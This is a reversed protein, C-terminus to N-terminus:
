RRGGILPEDRYRAPTFPIFERPMGGDSVLDAVADGTVPALLVGNRFHGTAVLVRDSGALWGVIPGNDPTAPRLGASPEVLEYETLEPVVEIALRLLDHVAGATVVTDSLEEMTAGVVVEGDRRPVLYASRGQAYGRIAHRFGPPAGGPACLRVLQGKVPRVPLGTLAATAWGAAVVTVEADVTSLETVPRAEVLVGAATTAARLATLVRRPDVQHDGPAFAGGRSRASLAPERARLEAGTVAHVTRGLREQCSRLREIEALDDATLAVHLAGTTEYGLDQGTATSLEAAFRPWRRWSELLLADLAGEGFYAESDPALMGAAVRSAGSGPDPDFVTVAHGRQACRWAAALGIIGGGVVAVRM